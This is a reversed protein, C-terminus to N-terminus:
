VKNLSGQLGSVSSGEEMERVIFLGGRLLEAATKM